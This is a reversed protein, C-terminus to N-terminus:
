PEPVLRAARGNGTLGHGAGLEYQAIMAVSRRLGDLRTVQPAIPVPLVSM